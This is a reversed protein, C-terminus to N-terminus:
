IEIWQKRTSLTSMVLRLTVTPREESLIEFEDWLLKWDLQELTQMYGLMDLYKGALEIELVHRYIGPEETTDGEERPIAPKVERRRLSLLKLKSERYVLETMLQLMKEPDILEVTEERLRNEVEALEKGLRNLQQEKEMYVGAAIRQRLDAVLARTKEVQTAVRQNEANRAAINQTMPEAYYNWWAFSLLSFLTITVLARERVTQANFRQGYQRIRNM